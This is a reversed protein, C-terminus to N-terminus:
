KGGSVYTELMYVKMDYCENAIRESISTLDTIPPMVVRMKRRVRDTDINYYGSGMKQMLDMFSKPPMTTDRDLPMIFCRNASTDIIASQNEKFDHMFRGRRGDKFDPVDIKAVNEDVEIEERFYSDDLLDSVSEENMMAQPLINNWYFDDSREYFRPLTMNSRSAYPIDCLGRMHLSSHEPVYIRYLTYGGVVGMAMVTLAIFFLLITKLFSVHPRNFVM